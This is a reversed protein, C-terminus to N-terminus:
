HRTRVFNVASRNVRRFMLCECVPCLGVLNGQSPSLPRYEAMDGAPRRPCRCRVCYVEGPACPRRNARRRNALFEALDRGHILLPRRQDVTPLGLKIWQRVTNRHVDWRRAVEDVTYNRHIKALRHNVQRAM